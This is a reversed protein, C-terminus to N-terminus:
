SIEILMSIAFIEDSYPLSRLLYSLCLELCLTPSM